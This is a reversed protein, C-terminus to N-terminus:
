STRATGSARSTGAATPSTTATTRPIPRTASTSTSNKATSSRPRRRRDPPSAPSPRARRAPGPTIDNTDAIVQCSSITQVMGIRRNTPTPQVNHRVFAGVYNVLRIVTGHPDAFLTDSVNGTVVIGYRTQTGPAELDMAMSHGKLVNDTITIDSV